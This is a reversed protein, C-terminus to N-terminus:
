VIKWCDAKFDRVFNLHAGDPVIGQESGRRSPSEHSLLYSSEGSNISREVEPDQSYLLEWAHAAIDVSFAEGEYAFSAMVKDHHNKSNAIFYVFYM